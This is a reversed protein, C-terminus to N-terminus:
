YRSVVYLHVLAEGCVSCAMWIPADTFGHHHVMWYPLLWFAGSLESMSDQGRATGSLNSPRAERVILSAALASFDM